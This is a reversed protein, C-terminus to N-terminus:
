ANEIRLTTQGIVIADEPGIKVRENAMMKADNLFTGNTSGLDTFYVNGDEVEINGHMGSAYPDEIVIENAPRRGITNEGSHLPIRQEGLLLFAAPPEDVKPPEAMQTQGMKPMDPMSLTLETTAFRVKQGPTLDAEEEGLRTDGIFTGNTSGLDRVTVRGDQLVVEAHKRSVGAEQLLIDGERGVSNAGERLYHERGSADVLSPPRVAPAGFADEPLASEFILGCEICFGEGAPNFTKCVPCQVPQITQTVNLNPGPGMRTKNPDGGLMQTANPNDM